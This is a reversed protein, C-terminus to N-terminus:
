SCPFCYTTTYKSVNATSYNGRETVGLVLRNQSVSFSSQIEAPSVPSRPLGAHFKACPNPVSHYWAYRALTRGFLFRWSVLFFFLCVTDVSSNRERGKGEEQAFNPVTSLWVQPRPDHQSGSKSKNSPKPSIVRSPNVCWWPKTFRGGPALNVCYM